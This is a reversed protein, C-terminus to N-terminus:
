TEFNYKGSSGTIIYRRGLKPPLHPTSDIPNESIQKYTEHIEDITWRHPSIKLAEEPTGSMKTNLQILYLVILVFSTSIIILPYYLLDM